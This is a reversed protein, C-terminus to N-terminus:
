GLLCKQTRHCFARVGRGVFVTGRGLLHAKQSRHGRATIDSHCARVLDTPSRCCVGVRHFLNQTHTHTDSVEPRVFARRARLGLKRPTELAALRDQWELFSLHELLPATDRRDAAGGESKFFTFTTDEDIEEESALSKPPVFAAEDGQSTQGDDDAAGAEAENALEVMEDFDALSRRSSATTSQSSTKQHNATTSNPSIASSAIARAASSSGNSSAECSMAAAAYLSIFSDRYFRVSSDRQRSDSFADISSSTSAAGSRAKHGRGPWAVAPNFHSSQDSSSARSHAPSSEAAYLTSSRQNSGRPLLTLAAHFPVGDPQIKKLEESGLSAGSEAPLPPLPLEPPKTPSFKPSCPHATAVETVKLTEAHEPRSGSQQHGSESQAPPDHM